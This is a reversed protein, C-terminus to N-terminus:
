VSFPNNANQQKMDDILKKMPNYHKIDVDFWIGYKALETTILKFVDYIYEYVVLYDDIARKLELLPADPMIIGNQTYNLSSFDHPNDRHTFQNRIYRLYRHNGKWHGNVLENKENIYRCIQIFRQEIFQLVSDNPKAVIENVKRKVKIMFTQRFTLNFIDSYHLRKTKFGLEYYFNYLHALTDWLSFVRYIGNEIFYYVFRDEQTVRFPVFLNENQDILDAAVLFSRNIGEFLYNCKKIWTNGDNMRSMIEFVRKKNSEGVFKFVDNLYLPFSEISKIYERLKSSNIQDIKLSKLYEEKSINDDEKM